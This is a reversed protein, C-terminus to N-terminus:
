IGLGAKARVVATGADTLAAIHTVGQGVTFIEITNPLMPIDASTAVVGTEGFRIYVWAAGSASGVVVRVQGGGPPVSIASNASTTSASISVTPLNTQFIEM